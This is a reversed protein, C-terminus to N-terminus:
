MRQDDALIEAAILNFVRVSSDFVEMAHTWAKQEKPSLEHWSPLKLDGSYAEYAAV